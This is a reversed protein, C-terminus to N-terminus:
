RWVALRYGVLPGIARRQRYPWVIEGSVTRATRIERHAAEVISARRPDSDHRIVDAGVPDGEARVILNKVDGVAASEDGEVLRTRTHEGVAAIERHERRAARAVASCDIRLSPQVHAGVGADLNKVLGPFIEAHNWRRAADDADSKCTGVLLREVDDAATRIVLVALRNTLARLLRGGRNVLQRHDRLAQLVACFLAQATM